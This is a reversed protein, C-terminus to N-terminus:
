VPARRDKILRKAVAPLVSQFREWRETASPPRLLRNGVRHYQVGDHHRIAQGERIGASEPDGIDRTELYAAKDVLAKQNKWAFMEIHAADWFRETEDQPVPIGDGDWDHGHRLKVAFESEVIRVCAALTNWFDMSVDWGKDPHIIDVAEYYNHASSYPPANTVKPGPKWRGKAYLDRQFDHDRFGYIIKAPRGADQMRRVIQQGLYMMPGDAYNFRTMRKRDQDKERLAKNAKM